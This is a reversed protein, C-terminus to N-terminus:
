SMMNLFSVLNYNHTHIDTYCMDHEDLITDHVQITIILHIYIYSCTINAHTTHMYM